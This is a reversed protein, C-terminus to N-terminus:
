WEEIDEAIPPSSCPQTSPAGLGDIHAALSSVTPYELLAVLPLSVGFRQLVGNAVKLAALSHAGLGFVDEHLGLATGDLADSWLAILATETATHGQAPAPATQEAPQELQALAARDIKGHATYPLQPLICVWGPVMPGPLQAGAFTRVAEPVVVGTVFATLMPDRWLVAADQVQPHARLTAEIEALEVRRGRIQVQDDRRGLFDVTGDLRIMAYDRTRYLRAGPSQPDPQFADHTLAPQNLYERALIGGICLEGAVGPPLLQLQADRVSLIRGLAAKTEQRAIPLTAPDGEPGAEDPVPCISATIVAETPGYANILRAARLPSQRWAVALDAPIAENGVILLRLDPLGTGRYQVTELVARLYGLPLDAVTVGAKAYLDLAADVPGVPDILVRAGALLPVVMQELSLDFGLAAFHLACDSATLGYAARIHASHSALAAHTVTVGKPRGTSGSTYVIYALDDPLAASAVDAKADFIATPLPIMCCPDAVPPATGDHLVFAAGADGAMLALREVPYDPDLPLYVGGVKWVALLAALAGPGRRVYVGIVAGRVCGADRLRTALASAAANLQRYSRAETATQVAIADPTEAVRNEFERIVPLAPATDIPLPPAEAPTLIPLHAIPTEPANRAADHMVALREAIRAVTQADVGDAILVAGTDDIHLSLGPTTTPQPGGVSAGVRLSTLTGGAAASRLVPCRASLDSAYTQRLTTETRAEALAVVADSLPADMDIAVRLPPMQEMLGTDLGDFVGADRWSLDFCPTQATRALYIAWLALLTDTATGGGDIEVVPIPVPHVCLIGDPRASTLHPPEFDPRSQLRARWFPEHQAVAELAAGIGPPPPDARLAAPPEVPIGDLTRLRGITVAGDQAAITLSEEPGTSLITGPAADGQFRGVSLGEALYFRGALGFKLRALPNFTTDFDLARAMAMIVSVPQDWDIVGGHAPRKSIGFYTRNASTQPYAVESGQALDDLLTGFAAIAADYCKLNLSFATEETSVPVSRTALIAGADIEDTMVHWSIGHVAEQAMLAWSTAHMGAYRPLPSDHYNIASRRVADRAESSIIHPNNISFLYDVPEAALREALAAPDIVPVGAGQAWDAIERDRTALGTLVYAGPRALLAEACRVCISGEGIILCPTTM